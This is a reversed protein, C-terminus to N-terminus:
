GKLRIAESVKWELRGRPWMPKANGYAQWEDMLALATPGDLGFKQVLVCAVRFLARDRM